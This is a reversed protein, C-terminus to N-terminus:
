RLRKRKEALEESSYKKGNTALSSPFEDAAERAEQGTEGDEGVLFAPREEGDGAGNGNTAAAAADPADASPNANDGMIFNANSFQVM